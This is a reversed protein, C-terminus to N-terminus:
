SECKWTHQALSELITVNLNLGRRASDLLFNLCGKQTSGNCGLEYDPKTALDCDGGSRTQGLHLGLFGMGILCGV